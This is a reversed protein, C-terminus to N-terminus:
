AMPTLFRGIFSNALKASLYYGILFAAIGVLICTKNM